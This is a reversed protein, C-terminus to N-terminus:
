RVNPDGSSETLSIDQSPVPAYAPSPPAPSTTRTRDTLGHCTLLDPATGAVPRSPHSCDADVPNDNVTSSSSQDDDIVKIRPRTKSQSKRPKSHLQTKSDTSTMKRKKANVATTTNRSRSRDVQCDLVTLLLVVTEQTVSMQMFTGPEAYLIFGPTLKRIFHIDRGQDVDVLEFDRAYRASLSAWSTSTTWAVRVEGRCVAIIHPQAVTERLLKQSSQYFFVEASFLELNVTDPRILPMLAEFHSSLSTRVRTSLLTSPETPTWNENVTNTLTSPENTYSWTVSNNNRFLNLLEMSSPGSEAGIDYGFVLMTRTRVDFPSGQKHIVTVNEPWVFPLEPTPSTVYKMSLFDNTFDSRVWGRDATRPTNSKPTATSPSSKSVKKLKKLQINSAVGKSRPRSTLLLPTSIPSSERHAVKVLSELSSTSSESLPTTPSLYQETYELQMSTGIAAIQSAPEQSQYACNMVFIEGAAVFKTTRAVVLSFTVMKGNTLVTFLGASLLETNVGPGPFCLMLQACGKGGFIMSPPPSTTQLKCFSCEVRDSVFILERCPNQTDFKSPLTPDVFSVIEGKSFARIAAFSNFPTVSHKVLCVSLGACGDILQREPIANTAILKTWPTEPNDIIQPVFAPQVKVADRQIRCLNTTHSTSWTLMLLSVLSDNSDSRSMISNNLNLHLLITTSQFSM